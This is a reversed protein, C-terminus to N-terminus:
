FQRGGVQLGIINKDPKEVNSVDIQMDTSIDKSIDSMM